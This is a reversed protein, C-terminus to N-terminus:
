GVSSRYEADDDQSHKNKQGFGLWWYSGKEGVRGEESRAIRVAGEAWATAVAYDLRGGLDAVVLDVVVTVALDVFDAGGVADRQELDAVADVRVTVPLGRRVLGVVQEDRDAHEDVPFGLVVGLDLVVVVLCGLLRDLTGDLAGRRCGFDNGICRDSFGNRFYDFFGSFFGFDSFRFFLRHNVDINHGGPRSLDM